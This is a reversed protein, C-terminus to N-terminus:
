AAFRGIATIDAGRIQRCFHGTSANCAGRILFHRIGRKLHLVPTAPPWPQRLMIAGHPLCGFSQYGIM